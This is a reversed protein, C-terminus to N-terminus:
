KVKADIWLYSYWHWVGKKDPVTVTYITRRKAGLPKNPRLTIIKKESDAFSFSCTGGQIFCQLRNLNLNTNDFTLTLSPKKDKPMTNSEPSIHQIRLAKSMAKEIFKTKGSYSESMPFRPIQFMDSGAYLVGSNQAAAAKFGAEKAITKMKMDFEGYPYSFLTPKFGLNKEIISQSLEIENKFTEYRTAEPQNLFYDHSHTHNGIEVNHKMVDRLDDWNMYDGGGVTKTNIFMIAPMKFKKLLPFGNKYFSKFGDDITIVATKRTPENSQLYNLADTFSVVAYGNDRLWTLHTEFDKVPTNTTPYRSDGFRHYIFCVVEKDSTNQNVLYNSNTKGCCLLIIILFLSLIRMLLSDIKM